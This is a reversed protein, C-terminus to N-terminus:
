KAKEMHALIASVERGARSLKTPVIRHGCSGCRCRHLKRIHGKPGNCYHPSESPKGFNLGPIPTCNGWVHGCLGKEEAKAQKAQENAEEATYSM